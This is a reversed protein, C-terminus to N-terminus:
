LYTDATCLKTDPLVCGPNPALCSVRNEGYGTNSCQWGPNEAELEPCRTYPWINTVVEHGESCAPEPEVPDDIEGEVPLSAGGTGVSEGQEPTGGSAVPPSPAQYSGGSPAPTNFSGGSASAEVLPPDPSTPVGPEVSPYEQGEYPAYDEESNVDSIPAMCGNLLLVATLITKTM